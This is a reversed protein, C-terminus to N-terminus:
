PNGRKHARLEDIHNCWQRLQDCAAHYFATETWTFDGMYQEGIRDLRDSIERVDLEVRTKTEM